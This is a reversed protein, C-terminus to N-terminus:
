TTLPSNQLNEALWGTTTIHKSKLPFQCASIVEKCPVQQEHGPLSEICSIVISKKVLSFQSWRDKEILSPIATNNDNLYVKKDSINHIVIVLPENTTLAINTDTFTFTQCFPKAGNLLVPICCLLFVINKKM